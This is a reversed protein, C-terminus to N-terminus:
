GHATGVFWGCRRLQGEMGLVGFSDAPSAIEIARGVIETATIAGDASLMRDFEETFVPEVPFEVGRRGPWPGLLWQNGDFNKDLLAV